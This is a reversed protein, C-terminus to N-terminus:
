VPPQDPTAVAVSTEAADQAADRAAAAAEIADNDSAPVEVAVPATHGPSAMPADDSMAAYSWQEEARAPQPADDYRYGMARSANRSTAESPFARGAGYTWGQASLDQPQAEVIAYDARPTEQPGLGQRWPQDPPPKLTPSLTTGGITGLLAGTGLATLMLKWSHM